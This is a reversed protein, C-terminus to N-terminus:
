NSYPDVHQNASTLKLFYDELKNKSAIGLVGVHSQVLFQNLLPIRDKRIQLEIVAGKQVLSANAFDSQQLLNFCTQPSDTELQVLMESPYFLSDVSGEVMKKGKDIILMRTAVQEVENLLHSSILITKNYSRSLLLLLNRIDAIGQPDLGNTPEDLIILEPDQVLAIAIGLRQKMGQSYTAVKSAHRSALGVLELKEMLLQRTPAIGGMQAFLRLNEYATLYRYHDPREIIAGIKRLVEKRHTKLPYGFLEVSGSTPQILSLLIRITTSKGAGNQGLFGYVDGRQISFSLNDVAKLTGFQKTLGEVRVLLENKNM